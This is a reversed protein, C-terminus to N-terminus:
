MSQNKINKTADIHRFRDWKKEETLGESEVAQCLFQISM